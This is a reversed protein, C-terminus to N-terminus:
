WPLKLPMGDWTHKEDLNIMDPHYLRSLLLTDVVPKGFWPYLKLIVPIDYGIINHGIIRDADQLRQARSIPESSGTDNYALTSGDSITSLLATSPVLM